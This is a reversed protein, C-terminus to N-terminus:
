ARRGSLRLTNGRRDRQREDRWDERKIDGSTWNISGMFDGRIPWSIILNPSMKTVWVLTQSRCTPAHSLVLFVVGRARLYTPDVCTHPGRHQKMEERRQM